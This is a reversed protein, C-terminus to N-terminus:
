REYIKANKTLSSVQAANKGPFIEVKLKRDEILELLVVGHIEQSNKAKLGKVLKNRDWWDDGDKYDFEVLEYTVLEGVGVEAPNPSNGKVGFQEPKGNFDGMSVVIHKPDIYDPSISLHTDWYQWPNDASYMTGEEFWNGILKGDIDYDIKGGLPPDTRLSLAELQSKLPENFYLFPDQTHIKWPEGEYLEPTLLGITIDKDVVNYDVSFDYWGIVEGAEVPIRVSSTRRTTPEQEVLKPALTDIHIYISSITCTHEIIVRWDQRQEEVTGMREILTIFGDGPSYVEVIENEAARWYQHDTPTVHGDSMAGLPRILIIKDLNFPSHDFNIRGGTCEQKKFVEKAIERPEYHEKYKSGLGKCRQCMDRGQEFPIENCDAPFTETSCIRQITADDPGRLPIRPQEPVGAADEVPACSSLLVCFVLLTLLLRKKVIFNM